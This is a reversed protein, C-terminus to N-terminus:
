RNNQNEEHQEKIEAFTKEVNDNINEAGRELDMVFGDWAEGTASAMNDIKDQMEKIGKKASDLAKKVDSKKAKNANKLNEKRDIEKEMRQIKRELDYVKVKLSMVRAEPAPKTTACGFFMFVSLLAVVNIVLKKM